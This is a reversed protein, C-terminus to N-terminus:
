PQLRFIITITTEVEVPEGDLVTPHYRWQRVADLASQVLLPHGSVVELATIRGNRAIIAHLQVTGELKIQKALAPYRPEVRSILQAQVVPESLKLPRKGENNKKEVPTPAVSESPQFAGREPFFNTGPQGPFLEAEQSEPGPGGPTEEVPPRSPPPALNFEFAHRIHYPRVPAAPRKVNDGRYPSNRFIPVTSAAPLNPRAVSILLPSLIVLVLLGSEVVLSIALAKRQGRRALSKIAPDGDVLCRSFVASQSVEELPVKRAVSERM